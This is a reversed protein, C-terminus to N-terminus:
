NVPVAALEVGFAPLRTNSLLPLNVDAYTPDAGEVRGASAFKVMGGVPTVSGAIVLPAANFGFIVHFSSSEVPAGDTVPTASALLTEAEVWFPAAGPEKLLM